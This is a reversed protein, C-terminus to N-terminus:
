NCPAAFLDSDMGNTSRSSAFLIQSGDPALDPDSEDFAAEDLADIRVPPDFPTGIAARHAGYIDAPAALTADQREFYITLGDHSLSPWGNINGDDLETVVGDVQWPDAVTARTARAIKSPVGGTPDVTTYFMELEDVSVWPAEGDVTELGPALAPVDFSSGDFASVYIRDDTTRSSAFYLRDGADNWTPGDDDEGVDTSNISLAVPDTWTGGQKTTVYLKDAGGARTSSYVLTVNDPRLAPDWDDGTSQVNAPLAVPTGFSCTMPLTGDALARGPPEFGLRGCAALACM